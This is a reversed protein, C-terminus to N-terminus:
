GANSKLLKDRADFTEVSVPRPSMGSRRRREREGVGGTEAENVALYRSDEVMSDFQEGEEGLWYGKGVKVMARGLKGKWGKGATYHESFPTQARGNKVGEVQLTTIDQQIRSMHRRLVERAFSIVIFMLYIRILFLVVVVVASTIGEPQLFGHSLTPAGPATDLGAAASAPSGVAIADSSDMAPTGVIDVRSVNYQPSTFGATDNITAGGAGPTGAQSPSQSQHQALVLFWTVAFVVTYGANVVTDIVYVWALALCHFPSQTRIHPALYSAFALVLLSYIYMSLQVPSLHLGTLLALLGYLASVKNLLLALTALSAGTRLSMFFFFSQFMNAILLPPAPAIVDTSPLSVTPRHSTSM